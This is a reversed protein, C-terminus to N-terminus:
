YNKCKDGAYTTFAEEKSDVLKAGLSVAYEEVFSIVREYEEESHDEYPWM